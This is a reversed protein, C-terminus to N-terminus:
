KLQDLVKKATEAQPGTPALEVVKQFDAKAEALKQMGFYTMGRQFYGDVYAPDLAIAKSFYTVAQEQDNKNLFSVGVNFYVDPNKIADPPLSDLLERGKDVMGAEIAEMAMLTRVDNNTPDADLMKQLYEVEKELNGEQKYCRAIQVNLTNALDPRMVLLKEYEARADAWRGEKYATDGKAVAEMVEPPPGQAAAKELKVEIPPLRVSEAALQASIRKTAFGPAEFDINWNGAALGLYAWQGKKNTKITPGGGRAPNELKVVVEPVPKGDPGLVKGELRGEGSWDQASVPAALGVIGLVVAARWPSM